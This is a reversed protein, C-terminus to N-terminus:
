RASASIRAGTVDVAPFALGPLGTNRATVSLRRVGGVRTSQFALASPSFALTGAAVEFAGIDCGVGQPRATGALDTGPCGAVPAADIAPSGAGPARAPSTASTCTPRMWTSLPFIQPSSPSM